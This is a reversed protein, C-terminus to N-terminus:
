RLDAPAVDAELVVFDPCMAKAVRAATEPLGAIRADRQAGLFDTLVDKSVALWGGPTEYSVLFEGELRRHLLQEGDCYEAQAPAHGM